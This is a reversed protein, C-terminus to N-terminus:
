INQGILKKLKLLRLAHAPNLVNKKIYELPSYEAARSSYEAVVKM